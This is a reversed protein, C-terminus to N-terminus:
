SGAVAEPGQDDWVITYGHGLCMRCPSSDPGEQGSGECKKCLPWQDPPAVNIWLAYVVAYHRPFRPKPSDFPLDGTSRGHAGAVRAADPRQRRWMLADRDFHGPDALRPRIEFQELWQGDTEEQDPVSVTASPEGAGDAMPEGAAGVGAGRGVSGGDSESGGEPGPGGDSVDVADRDRESRDPGPEGAPGPPRGKRGTNRPSGSGAGTGTEDTEAPWKGILRLAAEVTLRAPDRANAAVREWLLGEHEALQKYSQATRFGITGRSEVWAKFRGHGVVKKVKKLVRGIRIAAELSQRVSLELRGVEEDFARALGAEDAPLPTEPL